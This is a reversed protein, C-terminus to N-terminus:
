FKPLLPKNNLVKEIKRNIEANYKEFTLMANLNEKLQSEKSAGLIVTSVNAQFMCWNLALQPLTLELKKSLKLLQDVQELKVKAQEGITKDKLWEM